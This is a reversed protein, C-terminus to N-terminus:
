SGTRVLEAQYGVGPQVTSPQQEAPAFKNYSKNYVQKVALHFCEM